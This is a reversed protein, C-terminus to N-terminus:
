HSSPFATCVGDARAAGGPVVAVVEGATCVAEGMCILPGGSGGCIMHRTHLCFIHRTKRCCMRDTNGRPLIRPVGLECRVQRAHSLDTGNTTKSVFVNPSRLVTKVVTEHILPPSLERGFTHLLTCFLTSIAPKRSIKTGM